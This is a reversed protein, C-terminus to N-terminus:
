LSRIPRSAARKCAFREPRNKRKLSVSRQCVSIRFFYSAAAAIHHQRRTSTCFTRTSYLDGCSFCILLARHIGQGLVAIFSAVLRRFAGPLRYTAKSGSTDSHPFGKLRSSFIRPTVDARLSGQSTFCRLVLLFLSCYSNRETRGISRRCPVRSEHYGSYRRAFLSFGLGREESLPTTLHSYESKDPASNCFTQIASATPFCRGLPYHGRIYFVFSESEYEKTARSM